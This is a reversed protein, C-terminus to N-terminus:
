EPLWNKGKAAAINFREWLKVDRFKIHVTGKKFYRITFFHSTLESGDYRRGSHQLHDDITAAITSITKFDDGSIYCLAKDIDNFKQTNDYSVHWALDGYHNRLGWPIIVKQNVKYADNTKWGEWHVKNKPDYSCLREFTDLICRELIAGKNAYLMDFLSAINEKTFDMAGQQETFKSFDKQLQSTFLDRMKSRHILNGWAANNLEGVRKNYQMEPRINSGDSIMEKLNISYDQIGLPAMFSLLKRHAKILDFLAERAGGYCHILTDIMNVRAIGDSLNEETFDAESVKTKSASSFDFAKASNKKKLRVLAVGVDTRRDAGSFVSGLFEVSGNDQIINALLQRKKTYPNRITEENLLCVIHGEQMVEWAKLLHEDGNSFPPNMLILDFFYNGSYALFDTHILKYGKGKVIEALNPDAEIAYVNPKRTSYKMVYDIIAGSGASPELITYNGYNANSITALHPRLMKSIVADPTPYFEEHFM